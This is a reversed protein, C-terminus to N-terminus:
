WFDGHPCADKLNLLGTRQSPNFILQLLDCNKDCKTNYTDTFFGTACTRGYLLSFKSTVRLLPRLEHKTSCNVLGVVVLCWPLLQLGPIPQLIIDKQRHYNRAITEAELQMSWAISFKHVWTNEEPRCQLWWPGRIRKLIM